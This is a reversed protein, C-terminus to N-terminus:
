IKSLDVSIKSKTGRKEIVEKFEEFSIKGDADKDLYIITKDVVQQLQQDTLNSGTMMKLVQFLEGNSIYGDRDMDYIRFIFQLRREEDDRSNFQALGLVFEKFDVEGNLDSDFIDVVRKVLPNEKLEPVSVFEGISISGSRDLDLKHFRKELRSVEEQSFDDVKPISSNHGM